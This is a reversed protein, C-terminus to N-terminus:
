HLTRLTISPTTLYFVFLSRPKLGGARVIGVSRGGSTLSTLASKLPYLTDRPWRLSDGVTTLKPKRSRLRKEKFYSRNDERPQTCGTGSGGNRLFDPLAGSRQIQLWSSQGSSWLAPRFLTCIFSYIHVHVPINWVTKSHKHRLPFTIISPRWPVSGTM